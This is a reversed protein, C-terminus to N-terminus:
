YGIDDQEPGIDDQEPGIDDQEPGGDDWDSCGFACLTGDPVEPICRRGDRSAGFAGSGGELRPTPSSLVAAKYPLAATGLVYSHM